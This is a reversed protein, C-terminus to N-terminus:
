REAVKWPSDWLQAPWRYDDQESEEVTATSLFLLQADETLTKFGNAYGPRILLVAPKSASLVYRHVEARSDPHTWDSVKVAAVIAAGRVAVVAKAERQHGHWARITGRQHNSVLYFRRFGNLDFKNAFSVQGRDDVAIGGEILVPQNGPM